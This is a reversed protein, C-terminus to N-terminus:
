RGHVVKRFGAGYSWGETIARKDAKSDQYNYLTGWKISQGSSTGLTQQAYGWLWNGADFMNYATGYNNFIYIPGKDKLLETDFNYNEVLTDDFYRPLHYVSFDLPGGHSNALTFLPRFLWHMKEVGSENMMDNIDGQSVFNIFSINKFDDGFKKMNYKIAAVDTKPDNFEYSSSKGTKSNEIVLKDPENNEVIRKFRGEEDFVFDDELMGDPDIFRLPNDYAYRYPSWRRGQEALPDVVNWRGIEADYFRAGYDLQGGLEGQVEKGNYLYKNIGSTVIAKSKGFPYYDHKQIVTGTTATTRQLTARVNGLHDTLNYHYTYTGGSNQLYGEETHMMEITSPDSGVKNYEIGGIYDRQTTTGGVTSAKRLKTGFANYLYTVSTGSKTATKPLNLHNYTFAMATRDLTANGNVDYLYSGNLGGTLATLRNGTYTYNIATSNDRTLTSINGMDDYTLIESMVTGTSTGNKLRNLKDYTYSFTSSTTAGHGWLQQSINGNYQATGGSAPDNYRLEETFHPSAIRKTWGRENYTYDISYIFNTGSNESHLNKQKLQGIENYVLQSQIVEAQANVKKKTEILRGVHDYENTTLLTTVAGSTSGQHQHRSTLLEGTFSYTNTARDVGGLHNDSVSEIMRARRDYYNVTLLAASGDDRSVKTGTLLGEVMATSDLGGSAALVTSAKFGYDDYYNVVHVTKGSTPFTRNTYAASGMREEWQPTVADALARVQMYTRQTSATNTYIGTETVRGFADYKTYSWKGSVRQVSDQTLVPQDNKNYIVYERGKGPVKKEKLRRQEDYRYAYIYKDFVPDGSAETFGTGTVTPPVVYRLDGFIDYVYHTELKKSETEWIRRLVARDDFDKYEEVTGAKGSVWNEDKVVTKYLKGPLYYGSGDASKDDANVKWLHVDNSINTGYDTVVTRGSNATRSTGPQWVAGPSGQELVRDLPNNEFVTVAYPNPTRVIGAIDNGSSKSYFSTVNTSGGTKYSGNGTSHVYPLYQHTKRGFGDYEIHQVIDRHEPSAMLGVVQSPRGLGDFYQVTQNEEEITRVQGLEAVKVPIRFTRTLIYNQNSSPISVINPKQQISLLVNKGSPIHFGPKLVISQLARISTQNSYTNLELNSSQGHTVVTLLALLIITLLKKMEM